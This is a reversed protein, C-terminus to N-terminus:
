VPNFGPEGGKQPPPLPIAPPLGLEKALLAAEFVVYSTLLHLLAPDPKGEELSKKVNEVEEESGAMRVAGKLTLSLVPPQSTINAVFRIVLVGDEVRPPSAPFSLQINLNANNVPSESLREAHIYEFSLNLQM